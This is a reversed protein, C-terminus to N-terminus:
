CKELVKAKSDFYGNERYIKILESKLKYKADVYLEIDREKDPKIRKKLVRFVEDIEVDLAKAIKEPTYGIEFLKLVRTDRVM